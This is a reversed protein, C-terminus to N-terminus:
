WFLKYGIFLLAGVGALIFMTITVIANTKMRDEDEKIEALRAAEQARLIELIEKIDEEMM